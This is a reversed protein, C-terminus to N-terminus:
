AAREVKREEAEWLDVLDSVSWLHDTVGAAMAPSVRLTRHIKIFNYAFYNLAVAAAHNEIKRSFGNSLRTYRRMATRVSWNQREVFSTSIHNPDPNGSIVAMQIGICEAPSYRTESEAPDAGYMKVLMAYDVDAGFASEIATLYVRHGDSTIQIRNSLRSALDHIFRLATGANRDGLRWCPVLKTEADIAVWLWLDGAGPIKEAIVPTVNKAKCYNFGWLEDLQIKRCSLNRLVQDQYDECLMGVEVLVRMVTKKAIGAMRVTARISCGEILCNVVQTRQDHTLKNM